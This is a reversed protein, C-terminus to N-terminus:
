QFSNKIAQCVNIFFPEDKKLPTGGTVLIHKAPLMEDNIAIELAELINTLSMKKYPNNGVSCFQCQKKIISSSCGSIPWVAARDTM